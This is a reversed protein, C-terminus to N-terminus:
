ALTPLRALDNEALARRPAPLAGLFAPRHWEPKPAAGRAAELSRALGVHGKAQAIDAPSLGENNTPHKDHMATLLKSAAAAQNNNAAYHIPTNGNTSRANTSAGRTLLLAIFASQGREAALHMPTFSQLDDAEMDAGQDILMEGIRVAGSWAAWHLPTREFAEDAGSTNCGQMILSVAKEYCSDGERCFKRLRSGAGQTPLALMRQHHWREESNRFTSNFTSETKPDALRRIEATIDTPTGSGSGDEVPRKLAPANIPDNWHSDATKVGGGSYVAVSRRLKEVDIRSAEPM